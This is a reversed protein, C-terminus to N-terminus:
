PPASPAPAPVAPVFTVTSPSSFFPPPDYCYLPCNIVPHHKSFTGSIIPQILNMDYCIWPTIIQRRPMAPDPILFRFYKPSGIKNYHWGDKPCVGSFVEQPLHMNDSTPPMGPPMPWQLVKIEEEEEKIPILSLMSPSPPSVPPIEMAMYKITHPSDWTASHPSLSWNDDSQGDQTSVEKAIHEAWIEEMPCPLKTFPISKCAIQPKDSPTYDFIDDLLLLKISTPIPIPSSMKQDDQLDIHFLLPLPSNDCSSAIDMDSPTGPEAVTSRPTHTGFTNPTGLTMPNGLVSAINALNCLQTFINYIYFSSHLPKNPTYFILSNFQPSSSLIPTRKYANLLANALAINRLSNPHTCTQKM